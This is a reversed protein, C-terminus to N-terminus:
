EKMILNRFCMRNSNYLITTKQLLIAKINFIYVIVKQMYYFGIKNITYYHFISLLNM